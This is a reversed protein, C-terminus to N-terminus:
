LPRYRVRFAPRWSRGGDESADIRMWREGSRLELRLRFYREGDETPFTTGSRLNDLVLTDGDIRGEYVDMLGWTDDIAAKRFVNRYQDFTLLQLMDFGEGSGEVTRERLVMGGHVFEVRVVRPAGSEWTSGGDPSFETTSRFDGALVALEAMRSRAVAGPDQTEAPAPFPALVAGSFLLVLVLSRIM